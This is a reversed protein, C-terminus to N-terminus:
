AKSIIDGKIQGITEQAKPYDAITKQTQSSEERMAFGTNTAENWARKILDDVKVGLEEAFEDVTKTEKHIYYLKALEVLDDFLQKINREEVQPKLKDGIVQRKLQDGIVTIIGGIFIGIGPIIYFMSSVNPRMYGQNLFGYIEISFGVVVTLLLVSFSLVTIWIGLKLTTDGTM